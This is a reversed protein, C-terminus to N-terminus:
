VGSCVLTNVANFDLFINLAQQFIKAESSIHFHKLDRAM